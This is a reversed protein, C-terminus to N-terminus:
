LNPELHEMKGRGTARETQTAKMVVNERSLLSGVPLLHAGSIM